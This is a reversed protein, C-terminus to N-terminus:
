ERGKKEGEEKSERRGWGEKIEVERREGESDIHKGEDGPFRSSFSLCKHSIFFCKPSAASLIWLESRNWSGEGM